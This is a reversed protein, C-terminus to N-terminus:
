FAPGLPKAKPKRDCAYKMLAMFGLDMHLRMHRRYLTLGADDAVFDIEIGKVARCTSRTKAFAKHRKAGIRSLEFTHRHFHNPYDDGSRNEMTIRYGSGHGYWCRILM